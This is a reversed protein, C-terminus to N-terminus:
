NLGHLFQERPSNREMVALSDLAKKGSNSLSWGIARAVFFRMKTQRVLPPIHTGRAPVAVGGQSRGHCIDDSSDFFHYVGLKNRYKGNDVLQHLYIRVQRHM